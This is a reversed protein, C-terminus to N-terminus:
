CYLDSIDKITVCVIENDYGNLYRDIISGCKTTLFTIHSIGLFYCNKHSDLPQEETHQIYKYSSNHRPSKRIM